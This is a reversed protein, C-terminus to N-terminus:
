ELLVPESFFFTFIKESSFLINTEETLIAIESGYCFEGMAYGISSKEGSKFKKIHACIENDIM